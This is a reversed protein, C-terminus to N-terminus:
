CTYNKYRIRIYAILSWDCFLMKAPGWEGGDDWAMANDKMTRRSMTVEEFNWKNTM